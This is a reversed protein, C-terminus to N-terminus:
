KDIPLVVTKIPVLVNKIPLRKNFTFWSANEGGKAAPDDIPLTVSDSVVGIAAVMRRGTAVSDGRKVTITAAAGQLSNIGANGPTATINGFSPHYFTDRYRVKVPGHPLRVASVIVKWKGAQPNMVEAHESSGTGFGVATPFPPLKQDTANILYVDVDAEPDSLVEVFAEVRTSGAPVDLDFVVRQTETNITFEQMSASGVGIGEIKADVPALKNTARFLAESGATLTSPASLETGYADATITFNCRPAADKSSSDRVEGDNPIVIQWVGPVPNDYSYSMVADRLNAVQYTQPFYGSIRMAHNGIPDLVRFRALCGSFKASLRLVHTGAPVSIFTTGNGPRESTGQIEAHYGNSQDLPQAVVITALAQQAILGTKPDRLDVIASYEGVGGPKVDVVLRVAKGRPLRIRRPSKFTTTDGKWSVNYTVARRPGTTRTFLIERKGTMGPTWGDREFLGIGRGPTSLRNATASRVPADVAIGVPEWDPSKIKQLAAWADAIQILGNGQVRAPVGTLFLASSFLAARLRPIDYPIKAQKAASILLTVAGAATPTAASTGGSLAFGAPMTYCTKDIERPKTFGTNTSLTGTVGLLDPKLGGNDTPGGSTYPAVTEKGTPAVGFNAKWTEPPTYAGIGFALRATAPSNLQGISSGSNGAAVLIPKHYAMVMRSTLLDLIHTGDNPRVDDGGSFTILDTRQDRFSNLVEEVYRHTFGEDMTQLVIQAGPAVGEAAGGLMNHGALVSAVMDGHTSGALQFWIENRKPFLNITFPRSERMPTSPNDRGFVGKDQAINFDRLPQENRFDRDHDLDLWVRGGLPDFLVVYNDRADSKGDLNTDMGSVGSKITIQVPEFAGMRWAIGNGSPLTYEKGRFRARGGSDEVSETKVLEKPPRVLMWPAGTYYVARYMWDPLYQAEEGFETDINWGIVKPRRNGVLDSAYQLEPTLLDVAPELVSVAVGRGDYTANGQKFDLAQMARAATYPNDRPMEKSPAPCSPKRVATDGENPAGYLTSLQTTSLAAQQVGPIALLENLKEIVAVCRVYGIEAATEKVTCGKAELAKVMQDTNRPETAVLLIANTKGGARLMALAYHDTKTLSVAKAESPADTPSRDRTVAILVLLLVVLTAGIRRAIRM